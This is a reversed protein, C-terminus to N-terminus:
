HLARWGRLTTTAALAGAAMMVVVQGLVANATTILGFPGTPAGALQSADAALAVGYLAAAATIALMLATVFTAAALAARLREPPLPTAFLAARCALVCAVGCGLSAVAWVVAAGYGLAAPHPSGSAHHSGDAHALVVFGATLLAFVVVPVFPLVVARRLSPAQRAQRVAVAILPLAGLVIMVSAALALAQVALHADRLM